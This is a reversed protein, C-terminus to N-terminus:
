VTSLTTSSISVNATSENALFVPSQDFTPSFKMQSVVPIVSFQADITKDKINTTKLYGDPSISIFHNKCACSEL